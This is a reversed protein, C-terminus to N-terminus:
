NRKLQKMQEQMVNVTSALSTVMNVLNTLQDPPQLPTPLKPFNAASAISPPPASNSTANPTHSSTNAQVNQSHQYWCQEASRHCRGTAYLTCPRMQSAHKTKRHKMMQNKTSFSESCSRCSFELEQRPSHNQVEAVEENTDHYVSIDMSDKPHVYWCANGKDCNPFKRCKRTSPQEVVRHNMLDKKRFFKEPCNRCKMSEVEFPLSENNTDSEIDSDEHDTQIHGIQLHVEYM